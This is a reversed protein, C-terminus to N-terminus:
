RGGWALKFAMADSKNKFRWSYRITTYHLRVRVPNLGQPFPAQVNVRQYGWTIGLEGFQSGCWDNIDMVLNNDDFAPTTEWDMWYPFQYDSLEQYVLQM